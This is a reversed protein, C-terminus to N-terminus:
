ANGKTKRPPSYCSKIMREIDRSTKKQADLEITKRVLWLKPYRCALTWEHEPVVSLNKVNPTYGLRQGAMSNAWAEMLWVLLKQRRAPKIHKLALRNMMQITLDAHEYVIHVYEHYLIFARTKTDTQLLKRTWCIHPHIALACSEVPLEDMEVLLRGIRAATHEGVRGRILRLESAFNM